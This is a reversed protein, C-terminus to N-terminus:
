SKSITGLRDFYSQHFFGESYNYLHITNGNMISFAPRVMDEVYRLIQEVHLWDRNDAAPRMHRETPTDLTAIALANAIIGDRAWENAISRVLSDVAAKAALFAAMLPYSHPVAHSSFAIFHGGGKARMVPLFASATAYLTSVNSDFVTRAESLPMADIPMYGPFYGVCNVIHFKDASWKEVAAVLRTLDGTDLLDIGSLHRHNTGLPATDFNGPRRSTTFIQNQPNAALHIAMETGLYSNAGTILYNCGPEVNNM